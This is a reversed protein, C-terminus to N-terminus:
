KKKTPKPKSASALQAELNAITENASALQAELSATEEEIAEQIKREAEEAAEQSAKAAAELQARLENVESNAKEKAAAAKAANVEDRTQNSKAIAVIADTLSYIAPKNTNVPFVLTREGELDVGFKNASTLGTAKLMESFGSDGRKVEIYTQKDSM